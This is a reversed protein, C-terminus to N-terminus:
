PNNAELHSLTKAAELSEEPQTMNATVNMLEYWLNAENPTQVLSTKLLNKAQDLENLNTYSKCLEKVAMTNSPEEVVSKELFKKATKYDEMQNACHGAYYLSEKDSVGIWESANTSMKFYTFAMDIEKKQYSLVGLNFVKSSYAKLILYNDAKKACQNDLYEAKEFAIGADIISNVEKNPNFVSSAYIRYMCAGLWYHAEASEPFDNLLKKASEQATKIKDENLLEKIVTFDQAALLSCMSLLIASLIIKM